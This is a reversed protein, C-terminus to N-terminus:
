QFSRLLCPNGWAGISLTSYTTTISLTSYTVFIFTINFSWANMQVICKRHALTVNVSKFETKTRQAEKNNGTKCSSSLAILTHSNEASSYLIEKKKEAERILTSQTHVRCWQTTSRFLYFKFCNM